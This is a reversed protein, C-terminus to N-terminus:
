TIKLCLIWNKRPHWELSAHAASAVETEFSGSFFGCSLWKIRKQNQKMGSIKKKLRRKRFGPKRKKMQENPQENNQQKNPKLSNLLSWCCCKVATWEITITQAPYMRRKNLCGNLNRFTNSCVWLRVEKQKCCFILSSMEMANSTKSVYVSGGRFCGRLARTIDAFSSPVIDLFLKLRIVKTLPGIHPIWERVKIIEQNGSVQFNLLHKIIQCNGIEKTTVLAPGVAIDQNSTM